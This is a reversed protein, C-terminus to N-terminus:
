RLGTAHQGAFLLQRMLTIGALVGLRLGIGLLDRVMRLNASTLGIRLGIIEGIASAIGTTTGCPRALVLVKLRIIRPIM